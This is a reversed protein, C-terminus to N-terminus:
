GCRRSHGGADARALSILFVACTGACVCVVGATATAAEVQQRQEAGVGIGACRARWWWWDAAARADFRRQAAVTTPLRTQSRAQSARSQKAIHAARRRRRRRCRRADLRDAHARTAIHERRADAIVCMLARACVGCWVSVEDADEVNDDDVVANDDANADDLPADDTADGDYKM